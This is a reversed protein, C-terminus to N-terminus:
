AEVPICHAVKAVGHPIPLAINVQTNVQASGADRDLSAARFLLELLKLADKAELENRSAKVYMQEALAQSLLLARYRAAGKSDLTQIDDLSREFLKQFYPVALITKLEEKSLGYTARVNDLDKSPSDPITLLALDRALSPWQEQAKLRNAM